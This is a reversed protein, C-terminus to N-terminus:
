TFRFIGIDDLNPVATDPAAVIRTAAANSTNTAQRLRVTVLVVVAAVCDSVRLTEAAASSAREGSVPPNVALSDRSNTPDPPTAGFTTPTRKEFRLMGLPAIMSETVNLM